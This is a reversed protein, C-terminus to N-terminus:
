SEPSSAYGILWRLGVELDDLGALTVTGDGYKCYL